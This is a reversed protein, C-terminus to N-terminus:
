KIMNKILAYGEKTKEEHYVSNGDRRLITYSLFPRESLGNEIIVKVHNRERRNLFTENLFQYLLAREFIGHVNGQNILEKSFFSVKNERIDKNLPPEEIKLIACADKFEKMLPGTTKFYADRFIFDLGKDLDSIYEEPLRVLSPYQDNITKYRPIYGFAKPMLGYQNLLLDELPNLVYYGLEGKVVVVFSPITASNAQVVYAEIGFEHFVTCYFEALTYCVINPFRNMFGCSYQREKEADEQLFYQLDRKVFNALKVYLFRIKSDKGWSLSVSNLLERLNKEKEEYYKINKM